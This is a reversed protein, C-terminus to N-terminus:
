VATRIWAVVEPVAAAVDPTLTAGYGFNAGEIGVVRFSAPLQGLVRGMQVAEAVGWLHSSTVFFDAPLPEKHIDFVRFAGPAAGSSLADILIVQDAGEWLSLLSMGDGTSERCSVGDPLGGEQLLSVVERGVADDSRMPQGVGIILM